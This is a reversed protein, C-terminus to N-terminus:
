SDKEHNDKKLEEIKDMKNTEENKTYISIKLNSNPQENLTDQVIQKIKEITTMTNM